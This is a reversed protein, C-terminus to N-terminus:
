SAASAQVRALRAIRRPLWWNWRGLVVMAAPVLIARVLTADVLVALALGAGFQRLGEVRGFILGAFAAVMIAAAATVIGGTRQLGHAVAAATDREADWAERMRSVMFVEYDMSLGFLLAFLVIPIWGEIQGDGAGWQFIVVLLGYVAAVTLANLVIAKLPLVLSRFGRLLVVYTLALVALVLWPFAGYSRALYDAGQAPAGGVAVSTGAPFRAAPVLRDRLRGVLARAQLAGYEHRPVVVVRAYRRSADVYPPKSGLATVYAEPDHFAADALREVAAHVRPSLAAGPAGGDVVLEVPTLVGAGAGDRLAQLGAVSESGRPLNVFSGPTLHLFAAPVAAAVLLAAGAALWLRPRGMIAAALRAWVRGEARPRARAARRGLMALLVPQLTAAAAISALPVVLGALGLSRIFPVPVLLLLALGLAVALGSVVVARGATTGTRVIAEEVDGDRVLEERFRSVVLLSYDIALGIGVLVVLNPVFAVLALRHALLWVIGLTASITCLGVLFPVLAALSIGLVGLLLVLAVPLSIAEGRRLDHRLIPDLDHQIAPQGTVLAPAAAGRLARRLPETWAKAHQLDLTTAVQGFLIRGGAHLPGDVHATPVARAAAVLERRLRAQLARDSPHAVRFVVVFSGDPREGFHRELLTQARQAESGPVAFSTALRGPLVVAAAIGAAVVLAWAALVLRRRRLVARTWREPM